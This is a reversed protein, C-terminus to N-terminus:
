LNASPSKPSGGKALAASTVHDGSERQTAYRVVVARPNAVTMTMGTSPPVGRATLKEAFEFADSTSHLGSPVKMMYKDECRVSVGCSM